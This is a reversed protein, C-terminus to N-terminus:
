KAPAMKAQIAVMVSNFKKVGKADLTTAIKKGEGALEVGRKALETNKLVDGKAAIYDKAYTAYSQLHETVKPNDFSPISVGELASAVMDSVEKKTEEVKTVVDTKVEEIETVVETKVGDKAKEAEKKEGKCSVNLSITTLVFLTSSYLDADFHLVKKKDSKYNALFDFLTKQFVGEYFQHRNGDITPIEGGSMDGKKFPGWDEPLGSFTDFGYFRSDSNSSKDMWWRFSNGTFVGFELYDIAEDKIRTDVLHQFLGYRNAHDFDKTPFNTYELDRHESIWKSLTSLHGAFKLKNGPLIRHIGYKYFYYKFKRIRNFKAKM